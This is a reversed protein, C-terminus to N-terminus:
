LHGIWVINDDDAAPSTATRQSIMESGRPLSDQDELTAIPQPALGFIPRGFFHEDVIPINRGINPAVLMALRKLRPHMVKDAAGGFHVTRREITQSGFVEGFPLVLIANRWSPGDLVVLQLRVIRLGFLQILDM